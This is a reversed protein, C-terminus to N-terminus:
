SFDKITFAVTGEVQNVHPKLLSDQPVGRAQM